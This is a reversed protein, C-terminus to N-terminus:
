CVYATICYSIRHAIVLRGRRGPPVCFNVLKPFFTKNSCSCFFFVFGRHDVASAAPLLPRRGPPLQGEADGGQVRRLDGQRRQQRGDRRVDRGAEGAGHHGGPPLGGAAGPCCRVQTTLKELRLKFVSCFSSYKRISPPLYKAPNKARVRLMSALEEKSICGSRDADYM